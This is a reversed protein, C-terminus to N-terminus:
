PAHMPQISGRSLETVMKPASDEKMISAPVRTALSDCTESESIGVGGDPDTQTFAASQAAKSFDHVRSAITKLKMAARLKNWQITERTMSEYSGRYLFWRAVIETGFAALGFLVVGEVLRRVLMMYDFQGVQGSFILQVKIGARQITIPMSTEPDITQSAGVFGWANPLVEVTVKAAPKGASLSGAFEYPRLNSYVIRMIIVVGSLRYFPSQSPEGNRIWPQINRSDLSVGALSLIEGMSIPGLIESNNYSRYVDGLKNSVVTPPNIVGTALFSSTFGHILNM